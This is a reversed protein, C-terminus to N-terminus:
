RDVDLWRRQNGIGSKETKEGFELGGPEATWDGRINFDGRIRFAAHM